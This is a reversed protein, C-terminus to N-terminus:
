RFYKGTLVHMSLKAAKEGLFLRGFLSVFCFKTLFGNKRQFNSGVSSFDYCFLSLGFKTACVQRELIHRAKLIQMRTMERLDKFKLATM